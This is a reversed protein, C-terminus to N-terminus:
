FRPELGIFGKGSQVQLDAFRYITKIKLGKLKNYNTISACQSVTNYFVCM